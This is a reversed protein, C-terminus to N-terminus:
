QCDFTRQHTQSSVFTSKLLVEQELAPERLRILSGETLFSKRFYVKHQERKAAISVAHFNLVSVFHLNVAFPEDDYITSDNAFADFDKACIAAFPKLNLFVFDFFPSILTQCQRCNQYV